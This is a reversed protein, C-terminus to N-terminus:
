AMVFWIDGIAGGSTPAGATAKFHIKSSTASALATGISVMSTTAGNALCQASTITNAVINSAAVTTGALNGGAGGTVTGATIMAATIQGWAIGGSATSDTTLVRNAVGVSTKVLANATASGSLLDGKAGVLAQNTGNSLANVVTNTENPASAAYVSGDVYSTTLTVYAM